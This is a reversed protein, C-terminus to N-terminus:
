NSAMAKLTPLGKKCRLKTSEVQTNYSRMRDFRSGLYRLSNTREIVEENFSVEPM